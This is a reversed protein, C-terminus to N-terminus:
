SVPFPLEPATPDPEPMPPIFVGEEYSDGINATNSQVTFFPAPVPFYRDEAEIINVVLLDSPDIVALRM